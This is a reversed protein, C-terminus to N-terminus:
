FSRASPKKHRLQELEKILPLWYARDKAREVSEEKRLLTEVLPVDGKLAAKLLPRESFLSLATKKRKGALTVLDPASRCELLWWKFKDASPKKVMYIDNAVLRKLMLWDKDCQTKKSAVLDELSLVEVVGNGALKVSKRRAWLDEFPGCGRMKAMIDVRLREVGKAFCRFHCAHGKELYEKELPPVYIATAKLLKLAKKLRSLNAAECLVVFDSDRSFEAAGYIICAQGGILLSKVECKSFISLVKLIPSLTM